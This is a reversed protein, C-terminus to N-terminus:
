LCNEISSNKSLLTAKRVSTADNKVCFALKKFDSRLM